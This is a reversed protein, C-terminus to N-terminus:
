DKKLTDLNEQVINQIKKLFACKEFEEVEEFYSISLKLATHLEDDSTRELDEICEETNIDIQSIWFWGRLYVMLEGANDVTEIDEKDLPHQFMTIIQRKFESGRMVIKKFMGIKYFPTNKITNLNEEIEGDPINNISNFFKNLDM